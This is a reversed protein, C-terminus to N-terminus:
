KVVVKKGEHIYIGPADEPHAVPQGMLNYYSNDAPKTVKVDNVAAPEWYNPSKYIIEGNANLVHSLTISYDIPAVLENWYRYILSGYYDGGISGVSELIDYVPEKESQQESFLCRYTGDIKIMTPEKQNAQAELRHKEFDYLVYQKEDLYPLKALPPLECRRIDYYLYNYTFYVKMNEEYLYEVPETDSWRFGLAKAALEKDEPIAYCKKYTVGNFTTDGRLEYRFNFTITEETFSNFYRVTNVWVKGEELLPQYKPLRFQAHATAMGFMIALLLMLKKM